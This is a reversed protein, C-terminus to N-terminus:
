ISIVKLSYALSNCFLRIYCRIISSIFVFQMKMVSAGSPSPNLSYRVLLLIKELLPIIRISALLTIFKSVIMFYTLCSNGQNIILDVVYKNLSILHLLLYRLRLIYSNNLSLHYESMYHRLGSSYSSISNLLSVQSYKYLCAIASRDDHPFLFEHM